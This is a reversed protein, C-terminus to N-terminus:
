GTGGAFPAATPVGSIAPLRLADVQGTVNSVVPFLIDAATTLANSREKAMINDALLNGVTQNLYGTAPNTFLLAQVGSAPTDNLFLGSSSLLQNGGNVTFSNFTVDDLLAHELPVGDTAIKLLRTQSM